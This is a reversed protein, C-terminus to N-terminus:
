QETVTLGAFRRKKRVYAEDEGGVEYEEFPGRLTEVSGFTHDSAHDSFPPSKIQDCSLDMDLKPSAMILNDEGLLVHDINSPVRKDGSGKIHNPGSFMTDPNAVSSQLQAIKQNGNVNLEVELERLLGRKPADLRLRSPLTMSELAMSLLGSIHWQSSRDIHVYQPLSAAPLSLPVYISAHNSMENIMKASNMSRLLQKTQHDTDAIHVLLPVHYDESEARKRKRRGLGMGM